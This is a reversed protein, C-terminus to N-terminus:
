SGRNRKYSNERIVDVSSKQDEGLCRKRHKEYIVGCLSKTFIDATQNDTGVHYLIATNFRGEPDVHERVWHYKIEIHKSRKHFVPNLALDRASQSDPLISHTRVISTGTRDVGGSAM